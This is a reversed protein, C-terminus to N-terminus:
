YRRYCGRQSEKVGRNNEHHRVAVVNFSFIRVYTRTQTPVRPGYPKPTLVHHRAGLLLLNYRFFPSSNERLVGIHHARRSEQARQQCSIRTHFGGHKMTDLWNRNPMSRSKAGLMRFIEHYSDMRCAGALSSRPLAVTSSSCGTRKM